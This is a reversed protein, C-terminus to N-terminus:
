DLRSWTRSSNPQVLVRAGASQRVMSASYVAVMRSEGVAQVVIRFDASGNSPKPLTISVAQSQMLMGITTDQKCQQGNTLMGPTEHMGAGVCCVACWRQFSRQCDAAVRVASEPRM